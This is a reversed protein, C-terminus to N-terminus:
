LEFNVRTALSKKAKAMEERRAIEADIDKAIADGLKAVWEDLKAIQAAPELGTFKAWEPSKAGFKAKAIRRAISRAILTREDAAGGERKRMWEGAYLGDLAKQMLAMTVKEVSEKTEEAIKKAGSAADAIKQTLGHLVLEHVIEPSLKALEVVVTQERSTVDYTKPLEINM